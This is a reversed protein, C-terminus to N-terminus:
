AVALYERAVAEVEDKFWSDFLSFKYGLSTAKTTDMAMDSVRYYPHLNKVHDSTKVIAKKDLIKEFKKILESASFIEKSAGNIAGKIDIDKLWYLFKASDYSSIYNMKGEPKSIYMPEENLIKLITYEFRKTYDDRAMIIPFRVFITDFDARNSFYTEALRKGTAYDRYGLEVKKNKPDFDEEKLSLSVKDYVYMSSIFIYKKIKTKNFIDCAIKADYSSFCINDYVIDFEKDRLCESMAQADSRLAHVRKVRDGFYDKTVGRTLLTVEHNDKLLKDVLLKGVFRTGGMILIKM